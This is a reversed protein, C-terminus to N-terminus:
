RMSGKGKSRRRRRWQRRRSRRRRGRNLNVRDNDDLACKLHNQKSSVDSDDDTFPFYRSKGHRKINGEILGKKLVKKIQSSIMLKSVHKPLKSAFYKRLPMLSVGKPERLAAMDELVADVTIGNANELSHQDSRSESTM